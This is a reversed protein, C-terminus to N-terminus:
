QGEGSDTRARLARAEIKRRASQVLPGQGRSIAAKETQQLHLLRGVEAAEAPTLEESERRVVLGEASLAGLAHLAMEDFDALDWCDKIAQAIVEGAPVDPRERAAVAESRVEDLAEICRTATEEIDTTEPADVLPNIAEVVARHEARAQDAAIRAATREAM